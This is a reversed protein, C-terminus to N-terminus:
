VASGAAVAAPCPWPVTNEYEGDNREPTCGACVTVDTLHSCSKVSLDEIGDEGYYEECEREICEYPGTELVLPRHELVPATTGDVPQATEAANQNTM